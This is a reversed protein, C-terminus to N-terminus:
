PTQEPDDPSSRYIRELEAVQAARVAAPDDYLDWVFQPYGAYGTWYLQALWRFLRNENAM